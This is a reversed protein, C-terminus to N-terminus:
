RIRELAKRVLAILQDRTAGHARVSVAVDGKRAAMMPTFGAMVLFADDGVGKVTEGSVPAEQGVTKRIQQRVQAVGGRWADMSDRGDNWDVEVRVTVDGRRSSPYECASNGPRGQTFGGALIADLDAATLLSCATLVGAAAATAAYCGHRDRQMELRINEECREALPAGFPGALMERFGDLQQTRDAREAPPMTRICASVMTIYKDCAPYGTGQAKTSATLGALILVGCALALLRRRSSEVFGTQEIM